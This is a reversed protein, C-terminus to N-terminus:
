RIHNAISGHIVVSLLSINGSQNLYRIEAPSALRTESKGGWEGSGKALMRKDQVRRAFDSIGQRLSVVALLVTAVGKTSIVM